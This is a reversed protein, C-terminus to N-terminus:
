GGPRPRPVASTTTSPLTPEVVPVCPRTTPQVCTSACAVGDPFRPDSVATITFGAPCRANALRDLGSFDAHFTDGLRIASVVLTAGLAVLVVVVGLIVVRVRTRM